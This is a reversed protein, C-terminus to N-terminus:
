DLSGYPEFSVTQKEDMSNYKEQYYSEHKVEFSGDQKTTIISCGRHAGYKDINSYALYDISKGYGLRVGDVLFAIDNLHDHGFFMGQTSNSSKVADFLGYNYNSSYVCIDGAEGIEGDLHIVNQTNKNGNDRYAFYAEQMEKVPIHMFVLSKPTIGCNKDSLKAIENKYWEVQNEHVCDYKWQIGLYDGDVYSHSDFMIFSQTIEGTSNKVNIIYNGYGDVEAPGSQFLCHSYVEKNEYLQSIQERNYYSYAETDHNGYALCWYVGLNEMATAFMLAPSKNNLTGAIYPVPFGIDGTVIVLDPKEANIMNVVATLSKKDKEKSLFGGGIHVDTLQMVRFDGDTKFTYYGDENEPILQNEYEVPTITSIFEKNKQLTNNNLVAVVGAVIGILLILTALIILFIKSAKKM